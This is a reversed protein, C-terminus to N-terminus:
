IEIEIFCGTQWLFQNTVIKYPYNQADFNKDLEENPIGTGSDIVM